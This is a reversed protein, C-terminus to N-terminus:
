ISKELPIVTGDAKRIVYANRDEEEQTMVEKKM